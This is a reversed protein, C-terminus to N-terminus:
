TVYKLQLDSIKGRFDEKLRASVENMAEDFALNPYVASGGIGKEELMKIGKDHIASLEDAWQKRIADLLKGLPETDKKLLESLLILIRDNDSNPNIMDLAGSLLTKHYFASDSGSQEMASRIAPIDMSGEMYKQLWGRAKGALERNHISQKEEDSLTLSKTKEMILDITSKIEAM